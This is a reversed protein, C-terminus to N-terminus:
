EQLRIDGCLYDVAIKATDYYVKEKIALKVARIDMNVQEVNEKIFSLIEPKLNHKINNETILSIQNHEILWEIISTKKTMTALQM